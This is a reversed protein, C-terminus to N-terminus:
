RVFHFTNGSPDTTVFGSKSHIVINNAQELSEKISQYLTENKVEITVYDLGVQNIKPLSANTGNWLNIGIHHHYGDYALFRASYYDLMVDLKLQMTYFTTAAELNNVHLHIHGIKTEKPLYEMSVDPTSRLIDDLPFPLTDMTVQNNQFTWSSRPKDVYIEIGNGDPDHMYLAESVLHDSAGDIQYGKHIFRKLLKGLDDRTPLLIALHYLGTTKSKPLAEEIERLTILPKGDEIYLTAEKPNKITVRFGLIETYYRISKKLNSIKLNIHKIEM